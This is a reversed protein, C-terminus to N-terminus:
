IFEIKYQRLRCVPLCASLCLSLNSQVTISKTVYICVYMCLHVVVLCITQTNEAMLSANTFKGFNSKGLDVKVCVFMCTYVCM